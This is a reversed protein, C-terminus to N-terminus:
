AGSQPLHILHRATIQTRRRTQSSHLREVLHIEAALRDTIHDRFMLGMPDAAFDVAFPHYNAVVQRFPTEVPVERVM